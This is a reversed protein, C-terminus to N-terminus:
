NLKAEGEKEERIIWISWIENFIGEGFIKQMKFINVAFIKWGISSQKSWLALLKGTIKLQGWKYLHVWLKHSSNETIKRENAFM